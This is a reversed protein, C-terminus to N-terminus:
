REVIYKKRKIWQKQSPYPASVPSYKICTREHGHGKQRNGTEEKKLVTRRSYPSFGALPSQFYKISNGDTNKGHHGHRFAKEKSQCGHEEIPESLSFTPRAQAQPFAPPTSSLHRRAAPPETKSPAPPLISSLRLFPPNPLRKYLYM